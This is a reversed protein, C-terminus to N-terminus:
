WTVKTGMQVFERVLPFVGLVLDYGSNDVFIAVCQFGCGDGICRLKSRWLDYDDVLWPRGIFASM